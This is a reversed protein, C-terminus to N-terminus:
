FSKDNSCSNLEDGSSNHLLACGSGARYTITNSPVTVQSRSIEYNGYVEVTAGNSTNIYKAMARVKNCTMNQVAVTVSTATANAQCTATSYGSFGYITYTQTEASAPATVCVVLAVAAGVTLTARQFFRSRNM